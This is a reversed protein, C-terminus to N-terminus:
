RLTQWGFDNASFGVFNAPNSQYARQHRDERTEEKL